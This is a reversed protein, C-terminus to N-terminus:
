KKIRRAVMRKAFGNGDREMIVFEVDDPEKPRAAMQQAKLISDLRSTIETLDVEKEGADDASDQQLLALIEQLLQTENQDEREELQQCRQQMMNLQTTIRTIIEEKDILEQAHDSDAQLKENRLAVIDEAHQRQLEINKAKLEEIQQIYGGVFLLGAERAQAATPDAAPTSEPRRLAVPFKRM